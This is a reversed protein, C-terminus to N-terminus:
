FVLVDPEESDCALINKLMYKVSISIDQGFVKFGVALLHVLKVIM